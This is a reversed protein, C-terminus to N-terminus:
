GRDVFAFKTLPHLHILPFLSIFSPVPHSNYDFFRALRLGELDKRKYFLFSVSEGGKRKRLCPVDPTERVDSKRNFFQFLPNQNKMKHFSLFSLTRSHM